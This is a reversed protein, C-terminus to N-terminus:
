LVTVDIDTHEENDLYDTLANSIADTYYREGTELDEAHRPRTSTITITLTHSETVNRGHLQMTSPAHANWQDLADEYESCLDANDAAENLHDNLRAFATHFDRMEQQLRRVEARAEALREDKETAARNLNSLSMRQYPSSTSGQEKLANAAAEGYTTDSWM